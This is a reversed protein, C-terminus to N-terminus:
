FCLAGLSYPNLRACKFWTFAQYGYGLVTQQHLYGIGLIASAFVLEGLSGTNFLRAKLRPYRRGLVLPVGSNTLADLLCHSVGGVGLGFVIGDFPMPLVSTVGVLTALLWWGFWHTAGRHLRAFLEPSGAAITYDLVDPLVAGALISVLELPSSGLGIALAVGALKHTHWKM